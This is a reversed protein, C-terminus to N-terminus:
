WTATTIHAVAGPMAAWAARLILRIALGDEQWLSRSPLTASGSVGIAQPAESEMHLVTERATSIEPTGSYATFFGAVDVMIVQAAPMSPASIVPITSGQALTAARVARGPSVVLVPSAGFGGTVLAAMLADIDGALAAAGGGSTASTASVGDLIGAPRTTDGATASFVSADLQRAAAQRMLNGIVVEAAEASYTALSQTLSAVVALKRPPGLITGALTAQAVPIAAGEAVWAPTPNTTAAPITVTSRGALSLTTGRAFLAAAASAPQLSKVFGAIATGGAIATDATSTPSVAARTLQLAARDRPWAKEVLTDPGGETGATEQALVVATIARVLSRDYRIDAPYLPLSDRTNM